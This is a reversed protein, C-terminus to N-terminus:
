LKVIRRRVNLSLSRLSDREKERVTRVVHPRKAMKSTGEELFKGYFKQDGFEMQYTGRVKYKATRALRGSMNAPAQGPASAQHIRGRFFYLRGTKNKDRILKRMHRVNEAGIEHLGDKIGQSVRPLALALTKQAKLTNGKPKISIM